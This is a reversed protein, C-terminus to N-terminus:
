PFSVVVLRFKAKEANLTQRSLYSWPRCTGNKRQPPAEAKPTLSYTLDYFRCDKHLRSPDKVGITKLSQKLEM